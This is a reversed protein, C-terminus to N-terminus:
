YEVGIFDLVKGQEFKNICIDYLVPHSVKMRTFRNGGKEMHVGFMCAYCGTRKEGTTELLGKENTVIDGYIKCYPLKNQVIYQLVDQHTWFGMPMSKDKKGFFNCGQKLYTMERMKSEDACEGTMPAAGTEKAYKELPKKKIWDCCQESVKFPAQILKM